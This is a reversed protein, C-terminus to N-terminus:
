EGRIADIPKVKIARTAPLLGAMAGSTVIVALSILGTKLDIGPNLLVSDPNQAMIAGLGENLLIGLTLGIYGASLTLIVSEIMIQKIISLPTAGIARKIGIEVTREKVVVLMINSIGIVGALLTGLGVIFTLIDIGQFLKSMQEYRTEVNFHGIAQPDDPAVNNREKVIDMIKNELVSVKNGEHATFAFYHVIDGYNFAKQMTTFPIHIEQRRDNRNSNSVNFVGVIKFYVGSMRIYEGVPNEGHPFLVEAVRPGIVCVKRSEALDIENLFRGHIMDFAQVKALDPYDGKYSFTGYRDKYLTNNQGNQRWGNLRPVIYEIEPVEQKLAVIDKNSMSWQRGEKFGKYPKSTKEAWIFASNTAFGSFNKTIGNELGNGAGHLVVLMFIGWLVGFATLTSRLRNKSIAQWVERYLDIDFM